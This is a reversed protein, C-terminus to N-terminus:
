RQTSHADSELQQDNRERRQHQRPSAALIRPFELGRQAIRLFLGQKCAGAGNGIGQRRLRLPHEAVGAVALCKGGVSAIQIHKREASLGQQVAIPLIPAHRRIESGKRGGRGVGCAHLGAGRLPVEIEIHLDVVGMKIRLGAIRTGWPIAEVPDIQGQLTRVSRQSRIEEGRICRPQDRSLAHDLAVISRIARHFLGADLGKPQLRRPPIVQLRANGHAEDARVQPQVGDVPPSGGARAFDPRSDGGRVSRHAASQKKRRGTQVFQEGGEDTVAGACGHDIRICQLQPDAPRKLM